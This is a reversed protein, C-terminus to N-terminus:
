FDTLDKATIRPIFGLKRLERSIRAAEPSEPDELYDLTFVPLKFRKKVASLHSVKFDRDERPVPKYGGSSFDPMSYLDEALAGDLLPGLDELMEFGNNSILLLDPYRERIAKIIGIVANKAGPYRNGELSELYLGSDLTDLFLGQFGGKLITTEIELFLTELWAPNRVDVLFNGKWNPNEELVWPQDQVRPWYARYNEAEGVSLYALRIVEPKFWTFPPHHSPDLIVLDLKKARARNLIRDERYDLLISWSRVKGLRSDRSPPTSLCGSLLLFFCVSLIGSKGSSRIPHM